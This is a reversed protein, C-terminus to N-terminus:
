LNNTHKQMEFFTGIPIEHEEGTIKHKVKILTDSKVCKGVQRPCLSVSHNYKHYSELLRLQYDFPEFLLKGKVPHQIYYYHTLFYLYGTDPDACKMFEELQYNTFSQTIHPKKILTNDLAM